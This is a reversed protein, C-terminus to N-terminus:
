DDDLDSNFGASFDEEADARIRETELHKFHDQALLPKPNWENGPLAREESGMFARPRYALTLVEEYEQRYRRHLHELLGFKEILPQFKYGDHTLGNLALLLVAGESMQGRAINSYRIQDESSLRSESVHKFTQFLIRFYPGFASPRRDYAKTLYNKVLRELIQSYNDPQPQTTISSFISHAYSDLARPGLKGPLRQYQTGKGPVTVLPAGRKKPGEIRDTVRTSLDLLQFFLSEFEQRQRHGREERAEERAKALTQHQMFGAWAVLAGALATLLANLGGFSDGTQGYETFLRERDASVAASAVSSAASAASAATSPTRSAIESRTWTIGQSLWWQWLLVAAVVCAILVWWHPVQKTPNESTSM